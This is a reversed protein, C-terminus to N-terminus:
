KTGGIDLTKVHLLVNKYKTYNKDPSTNVLKLMMSMAINDTNIGTDMCYEAYTRCFNTKEENWEEIKTNLYHLLPEKLMNNLTKNLKLLKERIFEGNESLIDTNKYDNHESLGKIIEEKKYIYDYIMVNSITDDIIPELISLIENENLIMLDDLIM